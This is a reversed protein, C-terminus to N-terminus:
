LLTSRRVYVHLHRRLVVRVLKRLSFCAGEQLRSTWFFRGESLLKRWYAPLKECM